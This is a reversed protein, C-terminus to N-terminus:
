GRELKAKERDYDEDSILGQQWMGVLNNMEELGGPKFQGYDGKAKSRLKQREKEQQIAAILVDELFEGNEIGIMTLSANDTSITLNSLGFVKQKKSQWRNVSVLNRILITTDAHEIRDNFVKYVGKAVRQNLEKLKIFGYGFLPTLLWANKYEKKFNNRSTQYKIHKDPSM